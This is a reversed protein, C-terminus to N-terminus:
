PNEAVGSRHHHHGPGEAGQGSLRDGGQHAEADHREGPQQDPINEPRLQDAQQGDGTREGAGGHDGKQAQGDGDRWPALARISGRSILCGCIKAPSVPSQSTTMPMSTWAWTRDSDLSNEPAEVSKPAAGFVW